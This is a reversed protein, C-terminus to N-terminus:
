PTMPSRCVTARTPMSPDMSQHQRGCKSEGLTKAAIRSSWFPPENRMALRYSACCLCIYMGSLLTRTVRKRLSWPTPSTTSKMGTWPGRSTLFIWWITRTTRATRPDTRKRRSQRGANSKARRGWWTTRSPRPATKSAGPM